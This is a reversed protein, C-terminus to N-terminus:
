GTPLPGQPLVVYFALAQKDPVQVLRHQAKTM